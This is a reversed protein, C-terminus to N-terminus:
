GRFLKREFSQDCSSIGLDDREPFPNRIEFAVSHGGVDVSHSEPPRNSRKFGAAARVDMGSFLGAFRRGRNLCVLHFASDRGPLYKVENRVFPCKGFRSVRRSRRAVVHM